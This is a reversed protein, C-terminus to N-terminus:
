PVAFTASWNGAADKVRLQVAQGAPLASVTFTVTAASNLPLTPVTTTVARTASGAGPDTGVFWEAQTVGSAIGNFVVDHATVVVSKGLVSVPAGIAFVAAVAAGTVGTFTTATTGTYSLSQLGTTSTVSVTAPAAPFGVTSVVTLTGAALGSGAVTTSVLPAPSTVSNVVPKTKDLVLDVSVFPGWNGAIDQGHVWVRVLGDPMGQLESLPLFATVDVTAANGWLGTPTIMEAGQGFVVCGALTNPPVTCSRIVPVAAGPQRSTPAVFAEALAINTYKSTVTAHVNFADFLGLNGAAAQFGNNPNPSVTVATTRPGSRVVKLAQYTSAGAASGTVISGAPLTGPVQGGNDTRFYLPLTNFYTIPAAVANSTLQGSLPFGATSDVFVNDQALARTRTVTATVPNYYLWPSWRCAGASVCITADPGEQARLLVWFNANHRGNPVSPPPFFGNVAALPAQNNVTMDFLKTNSVPTGLCSNEVGAARGPVSAPGTAPGPDVVVCVQAAGVVWGPISATATANVGVFGGPVIDLAVTNGTRFEYVDSALTAGTPLTVGLFSTPTLSTYDFVQYAIQDQSRGGAVTIEVTIQCGGTGGLPACTGPFGATSDVNLTMPDNGILAHNSPRSVKTSAVPLQASNTSGNTVQPSISMGSIIPDRMALSFTAGIAPGPRGGSDLAQLWIIHDGFVADPETALMSSLTAAPITFTFTATGPAPVPVVVPAGAGSAQWGGPAPVADLAWQVSSAASQEPVFTATVVVPPIQSNNTSPVGADFTLTASARTGVPGVTKAVGGKIVDFYTFMGGLGGAAGNNLHLGADFLPYTTGLTADPPITIFTDGSQGANLFETNQKTTAKVQTGDRGTETQLLNTLNLSHERLGLNAYRVLVSDGAAADFRVGNAQSFSPAAPDLAPKTPDYAVGDVLFYTPHYETTDHGFPDKNFEPDVENVAVVKERDFFNLPQAQCDNIAAVAADYACHTAKAAVAVAPRVILVGALGMAVQREGGATMGAEYIFTGPKALTYSGSSSTANTAAGVLDPAGALGPVTIAVPGAKPDLQNHVTFVLKEGETAILRPGGLVPTASDSTTFGWFPIGPTSVTSIGTQKAFLDCSRVLGSLACTGDPAAAASSINIALTANSTTTGDSVWLTATYNGPATYNHTPSPLVAGTGRAGATGASAQTCSTDGYCLAWTDTSKLTSKSGDFTILIPATGSTANASLVATPDPPAIVVSQAATTTGFPGVVTLTAPYPGGTRPYVHTTPPLVGATSSVTGSLDPTTSSCTRPKDGFCAWWTDGSLATSATGDLTATLGASNVSLVALPDVTVALATSYTTLGEIVWLTASYAGAGPYLHRVGTTLSSLSVGSNLPRATSTCPVEEDGFCLYYADGGAAGAASGTFSLTSSGASAPTAVLTPTPAAYAAGAPAVLGAALTLAAVVLGSGLRSFRGPRTSRGVRVPGSSHTTM